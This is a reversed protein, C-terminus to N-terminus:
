IPVAREGSVSRLVARQAPLHGLVMVHARVLRAVM